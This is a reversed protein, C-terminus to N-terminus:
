EGASLYDAIFAPVEEPTVSLAFGYEGNIIKEARKLASDDSTALKKSQRALERRKNWITCILVLLERQDCRDLIEDFQEARLRSDKEWPLTEEKLGDLLRLIEERGPIKRMRATLAANDTPVFIMSGPSDVPSLVYYTQKKGYMKESRVDTVRCVGNGGYIIYSDKEWM